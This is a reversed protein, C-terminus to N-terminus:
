AKRARRVAALGGFGALMMWAAAPLPVPAPGGTKPSVQPARALYSYTVTVSAEQLLQGTFSFDVTGTGIYPLMDMPSASSKLIATSTATATCPRSFSSICLRTTQPPQFTDSVGPGTFGINAQATATATRGQCSTFSGLGVSVRVCTATASATKIARGFYEVQVDTLIGISLDFQSVSLTESTSSGNFSDTFSQTLAQASQVLCLAFAAGLCTKLFRTM